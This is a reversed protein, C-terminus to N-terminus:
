EKSAMHVMLDVVWNSYSFENDSWSILKVFHDNLAIGAEANFTSSYTDSNFDCSVVQDETYGLIGKLPGESAQKVVKKIDDYKAAKELRCTLDVVSVNPIPVHFAMGTLKRNLEPIVKGMAKTAGTSASIINQATGRGDHWLKGSPGDMTKQTATIAHVTTMLGEVIGLHDHIVKALPALCNTTCSANSVIKLSNDYKEHNVGMVFMPAGSSPASLIVRKARGKLHAGTKEMTTFVGTSEVVYEAGADGWKINAPDREQFISIAKGNIVLKGNEAKVTHHFKGHTSDYQFMYVMYNFDIFPDNISVIDVRGSNFAARTVLCGIHGFGNVGVKVM